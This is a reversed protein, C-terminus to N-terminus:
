PLLPNVIAIADLDFGNTKPIYGADPCAESAVINRIRVYRAQEVGLDALDFADGGARAVDFPSIGNGPKSLVPHWGGCQGYPPEQTADTCPFTVWHVLDDSVSVEGPEAYIAGSGDIVFPNEFVIFDVGPGDVIANPTFSVIIEGGGGLSVVDTSGANTGGGVPPGCVVKPMATQGFGACTGPTFSIVNTIFRSPGGEGHVMHVSDASDWSGSDASADPGTRAGDVQGEVQGDVPPILPPLGADGDRAPAAGGGCGGLLAGLAAAMWMTKM